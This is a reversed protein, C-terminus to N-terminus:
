PTPDHPQHCELCIQEDKLKLHKEVKGPFVPHRKPMTVKQQHCNLCQWRTDNMVVADAFKKGDKVHDALAGHCGECNLKKHKNATLTEVQKQHCDNCSTNGGFAIPLKKMDELTDGRYWAEYNWSSPTFVVRLAILGLLGVVLVIVLRFLHKRSSPHAM